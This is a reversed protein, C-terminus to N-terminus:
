KTKENHQIINNKLYAIANKRLSIIKKDYEAYNVPSFYDVKDNFHPEILQNTISLQELLTAVRDDNEYMGGNKLVFFIKRYISSFIAGHFSTTFIIEANKILSLYVSPSEFKPLKFGFTYILKLYYSKTSWCIVPLNYKESVKKVFKCLHRDFSPCYFFIYKSRPTCSDDLLKDYDKASYLLTPDILLIANRGTLEKIWKKGNKERVSLSDFDNIFDKYKQIKNTYLVPNKSGFSPAYAIKKSGQAWNLFYADDFDSITINWIQDSGAVVLDYNNDIKNDRYERSLKYYNHKFSEYKQNNLTIKKYAPAILINKIINKLSNNRYWTSYLERQGRSSFNIIETNSNFESIKKFIAYSELMSGCNYSNHFTIIGIKM